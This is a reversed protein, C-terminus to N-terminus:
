QERNGHVIRWEADERKWWDNDSKIMELERELEVIHARKVTELYILINRDVATAAQALERLKRQMTRERAVLFEAAERYSLEGEIIDQFIMDAGLTIRVRSKGGQSIKIEILGRNSREDVAFQKFMTATLPNPLNEALKEFSKYAEVTYQFLLALQQETLNTPPAEVAATM